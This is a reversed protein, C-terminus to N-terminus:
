IQTWVKYLWKARCSVLWKCSASPLFQTEDDAVHGFSDVPDSAIQAWDSSRSVNECVIAKSDVFGWRMKVAETSRTKSHQHKTPQRM